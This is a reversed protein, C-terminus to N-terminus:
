AIRATVVAQAALGEGRGTFGLGETTTAKINVRKPDLGLLEAVRQRMADRHPGVKPREGILTIDAHLLIGGSQQLLELAHSVFQHSAAGKWRADNPSFHQGIDGMGAAGLIADTLAHLGVDADSHGVLGLGDRIEVGCLMMSPAAELRHVDFGQGTVTISTETGLMAEARAFDDLTTLKFNGSEGAITQVQLGARLAVAADDPLTTEGLAGYASMLPAYHFAQPTQAGAYFARDVAAIIRGAGDQQIMADVSAVVPIVAKQSELAEAIRGILAASIFPRAADHIMVADPCHEGLAQLGAWVSATRTAGGTVTEVPGSLRPALAEFRQDDEAGIVVVVPGIAPHSLFAELTRALVPRGGIERYQKPIEGGARTGRGAAVIIAGIKM